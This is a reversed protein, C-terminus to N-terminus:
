EFSEVKTIKLGDRQVQPAASITPMSAFEEESFNFEDPELNRKQVRKWRVEVPALLHFIEINADGQDGLKSLWDWHGVNGGFDLVVPQDLKLLQLACDAIINRVGYYCKDYDEISRIPFGLRQISHDILFAVTQKEASLKKALTTKGAGITGTMAYLTPKTRVM